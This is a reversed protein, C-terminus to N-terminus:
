KRGGVRGCGCPSHLPIVESEGPGLETTEVRRRLSEACNRSDDCRDEELVEIPLVVCTCDTQRKQEIDAFTLERGGQDDVSKFAVVYWCAIEHNGTSNESKSPSPIRSSPHLAEGFLPLL